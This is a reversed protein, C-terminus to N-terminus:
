NKTKRIETVKGGFAAMAPNDPKPGHRFLLVSGKPTGLYGDLQKLNHFGRDQPSFSEAATSDKFGAGHTHYTAVIVSGAPARTTPEAATPDGRMPQTYGYREGTAVKFIGGSYEVAEEISTPNVSDIAYIAAADEDDFELKGAKSVPLPRHTVVVVLPESYPQKTGPLYAELTTRGVAIGKVAFARRNAVDPKKEKERREAVAGNVIQVDLVAWDPPPGGGYLWATVTDGVGVTIRYNSMDWGHTDGSMPKEFNAM